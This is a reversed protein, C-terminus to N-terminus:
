KGFIIWFNDMEWFFIWLSPYLKTKQRKKNKTKKTKEKKRKSRTRM